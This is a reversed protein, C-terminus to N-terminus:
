ALSQKPKMLEQLRLQLVTKISGLKLTDLVSMIAEHTWFSDTQTESPLSSTIFNQIHSYTATALEPNTNTLPTALSDLLFDEVSLLGPCCVLMCLCSTLFGFWANASNPQTWVTMDIYATKDAQPCCDIVKACTTAASRLSQVAPLFRLVMLPASFGSKALAYWPGSKANAWFLSLQSLSAMADDLSPSQHAFSDYVPHLIRDINGAFKLSFQEVQVHPLSFICLQPVHVPLENQLDSAANSPSLNSLYDDLNQVGAEVLHRSIAPTDIWLMKTLIWFRSNVEHVERLYSEIAALSRIDPKPLKSFRELLFPEIQSWYIDFSQSAAGFAHIYPLLSRQDSQSSQRPSFLRPSGQLPANQNPPGILLTKLEQSTRCIWFLQQPVQLEVSSLEPLLPSQASRRHQSEHFNLAVQSAVQSVHELNEPTELWKQSLVVIQKSISELLAQTSKITDPPLLLRMGISDARRPNNRKMPSSSHSLITNEWTRHHQRGIPNVLTSHSRATNYIHTLHSKIALLGDKLTSVAHVANIKETQTSLRDVDTSLQKVAQIYQLQELIAHNVSDSTLQAQKVLQAESSLSDLEVSIHTLQSELNTL